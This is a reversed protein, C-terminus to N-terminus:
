QFNEALSRAIARIEAARNRDFDGEEGPEAVEEMLEAYGELEAIARIVALEYPYPSRTSAQRDLAAVSKTQCHHM